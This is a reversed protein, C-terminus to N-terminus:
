EQSGGVAEEIVEAIIEGDPFVLELRDGQEIEDFQGHDLTAIVLKQSM